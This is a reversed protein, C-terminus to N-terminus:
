HEKADVEFVEREQTCCERAGGLEELVTSATPRDYPMRSLM